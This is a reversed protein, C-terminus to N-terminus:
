DKIGLDLTKKTIVPQGMWPEIPMKRLWEEVTPIKGLDEIIHDEAVDRTSYERNASNKRTKGFIMEVVYPGQTNHYLARHRVDAIAMKSMDLFDHIDQYDERTGGYKKASLDAHIFPKM